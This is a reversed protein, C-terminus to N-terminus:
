YCSQVSKTTPSQITYIELKNMPEQVPKVAIRVFKVTGTTFQKVQM